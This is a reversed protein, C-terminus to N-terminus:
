KERMAKVLFATIPNFLYEFPTRDITRVYVEAPMGAQLQLDGGKALAEPEIEVNLLYYALEGNSTRDVLRDSSIFVVKGTVTPTTRANYGSLRVDVTAGQAVSHADEPRVKAEVVLKANSPVIDMLADRPGVVQGTSNIRLAVIEGDIPATVTLRQAADRVPRLREELELLKNASEKLNNAATEAYQSRLGIIRLEVEGTKQQAAAHEAQDQGLKVEYEAANRQLGIIRTKQVFGKAVLEENIQLEDRQLQLSTQESKVRRALAQTENKAQDVQRRLILIQSDLAQKRTRFLAIEKELIEKIRPDDQRQLLDAPFVIQATLHKEAELRAVRALESDYLSRTLDFGSDTRLDQLVLLQEGAKVKQGDRVYLKSVIGGEQHQLTRRNMDVKVAGIAVVAGSVPALIVWLTIAILFIASMTLGARIHHHFPNDGEDLQVPPFLLSLTRISRM